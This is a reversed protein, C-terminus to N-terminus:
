FNVPEILNELPVWVPWQIDSVYRASGYEGAKALADMQFVMYFQADEASILHRRKVLKRLHLTNVSESDDSKEIGSDADPDTIVSSNFIARRATIIWYGADKVKSTTQFSFQPYSLQLQYDLRCHLGEPIYAPHRSDNIRIGQSDNLSDPDNDGETVVFNEDRDTLLHSLLEAAMKKNIMFDPQNNQSSSNLGDQSSSQSSSSSRNSLNGILERMIRIATNTALLRTATGRRELDALQFVLNRIQTNWVINLHQIHFRHKASQKSAPDHSHAAGTHEIPEEQLRELM